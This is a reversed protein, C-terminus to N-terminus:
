RGGPPRVNLVATAGGSGLRMTYDGPGPPALGIVTTGDAPLETPNALSDISLSYPGGSTSVVLRVPSSQISYRDSDFRGGVVTVRLEQIDQPPSKAVVGSDTKPYATPLVPLPGQGTVTQRDTCGGGLIPLCALLLIGIAARRALGPRRQRQRFTDTM